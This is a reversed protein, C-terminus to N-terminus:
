PVSYFPNPVLFTREAHGGDLDNQQDGINAIIAYGQAEIAARQASKYASTPQRPGPPRLSVGGWEGYGAARLNRETGERQAESRGTIFFVTVGAARAARYLALTPALAEAQGSNEWAHAGCPGRPLADCPGDTFYGFDNARMQRWNSLSTEDIDLVIAPRAVQPARAIIWATAAETVASVSAIYAGGEYYAILERKLVGLNQPIASQPASAGPHACAALAFVAALFARKLM